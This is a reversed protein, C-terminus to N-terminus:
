IDNNSEEIRGNEDIKVTRWEYNGSKITKRLSNQIRERLRSQPEQDFFVVRKVIDKLNMGDFIVFDVPDFLAKVDQPYYGHKCIAPVTRKLLRPLEKRAKEQAKEKIREKEEELKEELRELRSEEDRIDDLWSRKAKGQYFLKLESLRYIEGCDPCIVLIKQFEQFNLLIDKNM